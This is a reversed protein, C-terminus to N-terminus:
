VDNLREGETGFFHGYLFVTCHRATTGTASVTLVATRRKNARKNVHQHTRVDSLMSSPALRAIRTLVKDLSIAHGVLRLAENAADM